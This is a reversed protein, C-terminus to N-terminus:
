VRGKGSLWGGPFYLINYFGAAYLSDMLKKAAPCSPNYCYVLLPTDLGRNLSKPALEAVLKRLKDSSMKAADTYHINAITGDLNYKSDIANVIMRDRKEAHYRFQARSIQCVVNQTFVMDEWGSMDKKAVLVHVHNMYGQRQAGKVAAVSGKQVPGKYVQPCDLRLVAKGNKDLQYLGVNTMPLYGKPYEAIKSAGRAISAPAAAFYYILRNRYQKGLDLNVCQGGNTRGIIPIHHPFDQWRETTKSFYKSPKANTVKLCTDCLPPLARKPQKKAKINKKSKLITGSRKVKKTKDEKELTLAQLIRKKTLQM